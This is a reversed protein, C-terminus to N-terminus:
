GQMATTSPASSAADAAQLRDRADHFQARAKVLYDSAEAGYGDASASWVRNIYREAAAFESMINAYAQIGYLHIMSERADAFRRLDDRMTADIKDRLEDTGISGGIAQAEGEDAIIADLSAVINGLSEGLERRNTNLVHDSRAEGRAERKIVFVGAIAVVAAPVFWSWNTLLPDVATAFAAALFGAILMLFGIAKM